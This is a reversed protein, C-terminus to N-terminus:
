ATKERSRHSPTKKLRTLSRRLRPSSLTTTANWFVWQPRESYVGGATSIMSTDILDNAAQVCGKTRYVETRQDYGYRAEWGNDILGIAGNEFKLMVAVTDVDDYKKYEPDNLVM